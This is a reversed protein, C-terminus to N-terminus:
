LNVARTIEQPTTPLFWQRNCTLCRVGGTTLKSLLFKWHRWMCADCTIARRCGCEQIAIVTAPNDCASCPLEDDYHAELDQIALDEFIPAPTMTATM